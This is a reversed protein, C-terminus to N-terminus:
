CPAKTGGAGAALGGDVSAALGDGAGAALGGGAGAALGGCADTSVGHLFLHVIEQPAMPEGMLMPHTVSLILARLFRAAADPQVTLQDRHATLLSVLANILAPPRRNPTHFRPGLTSFLRWLDVVRQQMVVVVAELADALDQHPEVAEIAREFPEVDLAADLVAAIVADKDAFVRFITGESIGAADAMQRTTVMEGNELLLPLTTRVIM